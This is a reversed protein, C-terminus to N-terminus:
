FPLDDEGSEEPMDLGEALPIGQQAPNDPITASQDAKEIKWARLDTYWRQSFERSEANFYIKLIEGENISALEAVKDDGWVNLCVKKPYNDQTEIVFEQKKWEGRASSGTQVPLKSILTGTLELAM